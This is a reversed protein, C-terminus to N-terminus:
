FDIAFLRVQRGGEPCAFTEVFRFGLADLVAISRHNEPAATALVRGIGLRATADDLAARGAERAYGRGRGGPLFAYGLDPAALFPRRLLGCMGVVAGSEREVVADMAHGHARRCAAPGEVIYRAAAAEDRIRRDAIRAIFDPDNLLALVAPADTEVLPRLILRPTHIM